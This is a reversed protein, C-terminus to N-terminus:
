KNRRLLKDVLSRSKHVAAQTIAVEADPSMAPAETAAVAEAPPDFKPGTDVTDSSSAPPVSDILGESSSPEASPTLNPTPMQAEAEAVAEGPSTPAPTEVAQPQGVGFKVAQLGAQSSSTNVPATEDTPMTPPLGIAEAGASIAAAEDAVPHEMMPAENM